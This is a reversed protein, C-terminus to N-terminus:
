ATVETFYQGVLASPLFYLTIETGNEVGQRECLYIKEDEKYYLGTRYTMGVVATIPNELTGEETPNALPEWLTPTASPNWTPNAAIDQLAKYLIGNEVVREGAVYDRGTWKEFLEVASLAEDDSLKIAANEIKARFAKAASVTRVIM